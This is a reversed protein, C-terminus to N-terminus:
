VELPTLGWLRALRESGYRVRNEMEYNPTRAGDLYQGYMEAQEVAKFVLDETNPNLSTLWQSLDGPLESEAFQAVLVGWEPNATEADKTRYARAELHGDVPLVFLTHACGRLTALVTM